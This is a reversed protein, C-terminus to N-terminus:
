PFDIAYRKNRTKAFSLKRKRVCQTVPESIVGVEDSFYQAHERFGNEIEHNALRPLEARGFFRLTAADCKYLPKVRGQRQIQVQVHDRNVAYVRGILVTM